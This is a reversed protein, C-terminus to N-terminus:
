RPAAATAALLPWPAEALTRVIADAAGLAAADASTLVGICYAGARKAAALGIPSDEFVVVRAPRAGLAACAALYGEPDPKGCAVDEATVLVDFCDLIGAAALESEALARTASTVVGLPVAAAALRQVLRVGGPTPAPAPLGPERVSALVEALLSEVSHGPFWELHLAIAERATRGSFDAPAPGHAPVGHRALLLAWVARNRPETDVLTGDLDFLVAEAPVATM